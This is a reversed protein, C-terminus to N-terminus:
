VWWCRISSDSSASNNEAGSMRWASRAAPSARARRWARSSVGGALAAHIGADGGTFQEFLLALPQPQAPGGALGALLTFQLGAIRDRPPGRQGAVEIRDVGVLHLNEAGLLQGPQVRQFRALAPLGDLLDHLRVRQRQHQGAVLGARFVQAGGRVLGTRRQPQGGLAAVFQEVVQGVMQRARQCWAHDQMAHEHLDVGDAHQDGTFGPRALAFQRQLQEAAAM